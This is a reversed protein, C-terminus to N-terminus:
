GIRFRSPEGYTVRPKFFLLNSFVAVANAGFLSVVSTITLARRRSMTMSPKAETPKTM